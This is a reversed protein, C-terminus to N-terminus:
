KDGKKKRTKKTKKAKSKTTKSEEKTETEQSSTEKISIKTERLSHGPAKIERVVPISTASEDQNISTNGEEKTEDQTVTSMEEPETESITIKQDKPNEPKVETPQIEPMNNEKPKRNIRVSVLGNYGTRIDTDIEGDLMNIVRTAYVTLNPNHTVMIITNGLSHINRLEEMVDNWHGVHDDGSFHCDYHLQEWADLKDTNSFDVPIVRDVCRLGKIVEM